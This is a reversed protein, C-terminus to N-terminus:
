NNKENNNNNPNFMETYAWRLSCNTMATAGFFLAVLMIPFNVIVKISSVIDVFVAIYVFLAMFITAIIGYIVRRVKAINPLVQTALLYILNKVLQEM